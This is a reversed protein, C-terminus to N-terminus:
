VSVGMTEVTDKFDNYLLTRFKSRTRDLNSPNLSCLEIM